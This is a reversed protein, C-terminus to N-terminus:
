LVICGKVSSGSINLIEGMRDVDAMDTEDRVEIIIVADTGNIKEVFGSEETSNLILSLSVKNGIKELIADYFDKVKESGSSSIVLVNKGELEKNIIGAIQECVVNREVRNKKGRKKEILKDIGKDPKRTITNPLVGYIPIDYFGQLEESNRLKSGILYKAAHYGAIILGGLLFGIIIYKKLGRPKAPAEEAPEVLALQETRAKAISARLSSITDVIDKKDTALNQDVKKYAMDRAHTLTHKMISDASKKIEGDIKEAYFDLIKRVQQESNGIISITFTNTETRIGWSVLENLYKEESVGAMKQAESDYAIEQFASQYYGLLSDAPDQVNSDPLGELVSKDVEVFFDCTAVWENQPDIDMRVSKELYETLQNIRNNYSDVLDDVRQNSKEYIEVEKNYKDLEKEYDKNVGDNLVRTKLYGYGGLAATCLIVVVIISRWHALVHYFLERMDIEAEYDPNKKM